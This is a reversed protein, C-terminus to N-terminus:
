IHMSFQVMTLARMKDMDLLNPNIPPHFFTVLSRRISSSCPHISLHICPHLSVCISLHRLSSPRIAPHVSCRVSSMSQGRLFIPPQINLHKVFPSVSLHVSPHGVSLQTMSPCIPLSLFITISDISPHNVALHISQFIVVVLHPSKIWHSRWSNNFTM